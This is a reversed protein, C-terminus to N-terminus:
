RHAIQARLTPETPSETQQHLTRVAAEARRLWGDAAGGRTPAPLEATRGGATLAGAPHRGRASLGALAVNVGYVAGAIALGVPLALVAPTALAATVAAGLGGLIGAMALGWPETM